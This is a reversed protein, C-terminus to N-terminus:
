IIGVGCSVCFWLCVGFGGLDFCLLYCCFMGYVWFLGFILVWWVWGLCCASYVWLAVFVGSVLEGFVESVLCFECAWVWFVLCPCVGPLAIGYCAELLSFGCVLFDLWGISFWM